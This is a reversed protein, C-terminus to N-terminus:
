CTPVKKNRFVQMQMNDVLPPATLSSLGPANVRPGESGVRKNATLEARAGSRGRWPAGVSKARPAVRRCSMLITLRRRQQRQSREDFEVTGVSEALSDERTRGLHPGAM